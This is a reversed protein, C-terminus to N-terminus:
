SLATLLLVYLRKSAKSAIKDVHLNWTLNTTIWVSLRELSKTIELPQKLFSNGNGQGRVNINM